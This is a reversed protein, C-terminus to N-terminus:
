DARRYNLWARVSDVPVRAARSIDEVMWGNCWLERAAPASVRTNSEVYCILTATWIDMEPM